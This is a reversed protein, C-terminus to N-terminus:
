PLKGLGPGCSSTPRHWLGNLQCDGVRPPRWRVSSQPPSPFMSVFMTGSPRQGSRGFAGPGSHSCPTVWDVAEPLPGAKASCHFKGPARTTQRAPEKQPQARESTRPRGRGTLAGRCCRSPKMTSLGRSGRVVHHGARELASKAHEVRGGQGCMTPTTPGSASSASGRRPCRGIISSLLRDAWLRHDGCGSPGIAPEADAPM